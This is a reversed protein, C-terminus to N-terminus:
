AYVWPQRDIKGEVVLVWGGCLASTYTVKWSRPFLHVFNKPDHVTYADGYAKLLHEITTLETQTM